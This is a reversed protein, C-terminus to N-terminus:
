LYEFAKILMNTLYSICSLFSCGNSFWSISDAILMFNYHYIGKLSVNGIIWKPFIFPINFCFSPSNSILHHIASTTTLIAVPQPAPALLSKSHRPCLEYRARACRQAWSLWTMFHLAAGTSTASQHSM